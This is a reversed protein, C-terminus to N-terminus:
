NSEVEFQYGTQSDGSLTVTAQSVGELDQEFFTDAELVASGILQGEEIERAIGWYLTPEVIFTAKQGYAAVREQMFLKEDRLIQALIGGEVQVVSTVEIANLQSASGNPVM